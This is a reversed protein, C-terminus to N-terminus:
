PFYRSQRNFYSQPYPTHPGTRNFYRAALGGPKAASRRKSTAATRATAANQPGPRAGSMQGSGVGGNNQTALMLLGLQGTSMGMMGYRGAGTNSTATSSTGTSSSTTSSTATAATSNSMSAGYMGLPQAAQMMSSYIFPAAFPSSMINNQTSSGTGAATPDSLPNPVAPSFLPISPSSMFSSGSSPAVPSPAGTSPTGLSQSYGGFSQAMAEPGTLSGAGCAVVACIMRWRLSKM